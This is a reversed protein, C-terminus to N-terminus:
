MHRYYLDAATTGTLAREVPFNRDGTLGTNDVLTRRLPNTLIGALDPKKMSNEDLKCRGNDDIETQGIPPLL